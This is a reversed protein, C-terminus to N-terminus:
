ASRAYRAEDEATEIERLEDGTLAPIPIGRAPIIVPPPSRRRATQVDGAAPPTKRRLGEEVYRAILDKLKLGDLAARAKAQRLLEDPLDITTRM